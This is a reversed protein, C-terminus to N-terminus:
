GRQWPSGPDCFYVDMDTAISFARHEAMEAGQDWTLSTRLTQPLPSVATILSDRVTEANRDAGLHGLVVFRSTREVLTAIASKGTAGIILDGEWHGPTTRTDVAAPRMKISTMPDVFRPRRVSPDRRPKRARRGRRLQRALDRNLDGTAHVYIAQYITETSVRMGTSDPFDKTLRRSVQQPSWKKGLRHQVYTRLEPHTLLKPKRPRLRRQVSTRHATHPLYGRATTTNRRLERSITSPSRRLQAAIMRISMGSRRLDSLERELLSLYRRHIVKEVRDLDVKGGVTNSTRPKTVGALIPEPYRVVRGDPYVRGRHIITIGKDWDAASRKDARVQAAAQARTMGESRLRLFAERRPNVARNQSTVIGAQHAWKDCTVRTFGLMRAVVSVNGHRALLRFFEAKEEDTYVRPRARRMALGAQRLWSYAADPHVGSAAAAARVTAGQDVLDFFRQRVEASYKPGAM